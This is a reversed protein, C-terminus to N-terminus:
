FGVSLGFVLGSQLTRDGGGEFETRFYRYGVYAYTQSFVVARAQAGYEYSEDVDGHTLGAPTFFGYGGLSVRPIPTDVFASGGLGLGGGEGFDTDQYAYRGGISLDVVPVIPSFMLSASYIDADDTNLYGVGARFLPLITQSAEISTYDSGASASFSLAQAPQHALLLATSAALIAIPKTM